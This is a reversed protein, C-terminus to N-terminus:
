AIVTGMPGNIAALRSLHMGADGLRKGLSEMRMFLHGLKYEETMGIGGHLQIASQGVARAAATVQVKAASVAGEREMADDCGCRMAALVAMSRAHELEVVVDALRHRLAQFTGIAVGFQQRTRLYDRTLEFAEEMAGVIAACLAANAEDLVRCIGRHADESVVHEQPVMVSDFRLEAAQTRDHLPFARSSLGESRQNVLLLVVRGDCAAPVLLQPASAGAVVLPVCGRLRFGGEIREATVHAGVPENGDHAFALVLSGDAIRPILDAQMQAPALRRLLGGCLVVTELYPELVLARGFEQLTVLTEVPSAELGGHEQAFPLALLGMEAYRRWMADSYGGASQAYKRRADLGYHDKLLRRLTDQLLQQEPTIDFNM